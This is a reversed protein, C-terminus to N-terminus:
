NKLHQLETKAKQKISNKYESNNLKLAIELFEKQKERNAKIKYIYSLELASYPIYYKKVQNYTKIVKLFFIEANDYNKTEFFIRGLRYYYEAKYEESKFSNVDINKLINLSQKYEKIDFM